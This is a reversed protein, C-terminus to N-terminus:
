ASQRVPPMRAGVQLQQSNRVAAAGVKAAALVRGRCQQAVEALVQLREKLHVAPSGSRMQTGHSLRQIYPMTPPVALSLAM